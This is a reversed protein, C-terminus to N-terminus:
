VPQQSQRSISNAIPCCLSSTCPVQLPTLRPQFDQYSLHGGAPHVFFHASAFDTLDPNLNIFKSKKRPNKKRKELKSFCVRGMIDTGLRSSRSLELPLTGSAGTADRISTVLSLWTRLMCTGPISRWSKRGFGALRSGTEVPWPLALMWTLFSGAHWWPISATLLWYFNWIKLNFQAPFYKVM